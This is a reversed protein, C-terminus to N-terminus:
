SSRERYEYAMGLGELTIGGRKFNMGGTRRSKIQRETTPFVDPSGSVPSLAGSSFICTYISM